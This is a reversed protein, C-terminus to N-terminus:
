VNDEKEHMVTKAAEEYDEPKFAFLIGLFKLIPDPIYMNSCSNQLDHADCFRDKLGFNYEDLAGRIDACITIPDSSQVSDAPVHSTHTSKHFVVISKSRDQPFCFEIQIKLHNVLFIKVDRNQFNCTADITNLLDRIESLEFGKGNRLGQELEKIIKNWSQQKPSMKPGLDKDYQSEFKYIYKVMCENHYYVDAGFVSSPDQLDCTRTFVADQFFHTASLFKAARDSESIRYKACVRRHAKSNCIICSTNYYLDTKSLVTPQPNRLTEFRSFRDCVKDPTDSDWEQVQMSKKSIRNLKSQNTYTKYCKNNVHYLFNDGVNLLKIRKTVVDNRINSADLIRKRSNETSCLKETANDQCIICKGIDVCTSKEETLSKPNLENPNM